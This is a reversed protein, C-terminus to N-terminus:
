GVRVGCSPQRHFPMEPKLEKAALVLWQALLGVRSYPRSPITDSFGGTSKPIIEM